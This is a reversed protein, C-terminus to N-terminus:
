TVALLFQAPTLIPLGQFPHLVLLDQDGTVLCHAQGVIACELLKDDDPDRCAQIRGSVHVIIAAKRLDAIFDRRKPEDVYKLFRTRALRTEVEEIIEPALILGRHDLAWTLCRAPKGVPSIVASILVNSDLVVREIAM